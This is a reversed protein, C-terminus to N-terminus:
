SKRMSVLILESPVSMSDGRLEHVFDALVGLVISASAFNLLGLIPTLPFPYLSASQRDRQAVQTSLGMSVSQSAIARCFKLSILLTSHSLVIRVTLYLNHSHDALIRHSM